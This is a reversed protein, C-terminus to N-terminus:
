LVELFYILYDGPCSELPEFWVRCTKRSYPLNKYFPLMKVLIRDQLSYEDPYYSCVVTNDPDAWSVGLSDPRLDEEWVMGLREIEQRCDDYIAPLDYPYRWPDTPQPTTMTAPPKTTTTTPTPKTTTSSTAAPATSQPTTPEATRRTTASPQSATPKGQDTNKPRTTSTFSHGGEAVVSSGPTDTGAPAETLVATTEVVSTMPHGDSDTIIQGQGDTQIVATPVAETDSTRTNASSAGTETGLAVPESKACASLLLAIACLGGLWLKKMPKM